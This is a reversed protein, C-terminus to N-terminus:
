HLSAFTLTNNNKTYLNVNGEDNSDNVVQFQIEKRLHLEHQQEASLTLQPKLFPIHRQRIFLPLLDGSVQDLGYQGPLWLHAAEQFPPVELDHVLPLNSLSTYTHEESAETKGLHWRHM